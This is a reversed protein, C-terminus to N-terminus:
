DTYSEKLSSALILTHSVCCPNEKVAKLLFYELFILRMLPFFGYLGVPSSAAGSTEQGAGAGLMALPSSVAQLGALVTSLSANLRSQFGLCFCPLYLWVAGMTLFGDGSCSTSCCGWLWPWGWGSVAWSVACPFTVLSRALWVLVLIYISCSLCASM